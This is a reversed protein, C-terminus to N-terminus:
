GKAARTGAEAPAPAAPPRHAPGAAGPGAAGPVAAGLEAASLEAASYIRQYTAEEAQRREIRRMSNRWGRREGKAHRKLEGGPSRVSAYSVTGAALISGSTLEAAAGDLGPIQGALTDALEAHIAILTAASALNTALHALSRARILAYTADAARRAVGITSEAAERGAAAAREAATGKNEFAAEVSGTAVSTLTEDPTAHGLMQYARDFRDQRVAPSPRRRDNANAATVVNGRAFVSLTALTRWAWRGGEPGALLTAIGAAGVSVTLATAAVVAQRTDLQAIAAAVSLAAGSRDLMAAGQLRSAASESRHLLRGARNRLQSHSSAPTLPNRDTGYQLTRLVDLDARTRSSSEGARVLAELNARRRVFTVKNTEAAALAANALLRQEPISPDPNRAIFNVCSLLNRDDWYRINRTRRRSRNLNADAHLQGKWVPTRHPPQSFWSPLAASGKPVVLVDLAGSRSTMIRQLSQPHVHRVRSGDCWLIDSSRTPVKVGDVFLGDRQCRSRDRGARTM